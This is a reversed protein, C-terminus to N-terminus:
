IYRRTKTKYKKYQPFKQLYKEERLIVTHTLIFQITTLLFLILSSTALAIGFIATTTFFYTPNRSIAFVNKTLLKKTKFFQIYGLFVLILSTLYITLGVILSSNKAFTLFTAYIITASYTLGLLIEIAIDKKTERVPLFFNKNKIALILMPLFILTLLIAPNKITLNIESLM